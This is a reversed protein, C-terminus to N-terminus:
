LSMSFFAMQSVFDNIIQTSFLVLSHKSGNLVPFRYDKTLDCGMSAKIDHNQSWFFFYVETTELPM